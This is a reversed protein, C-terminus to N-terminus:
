HSWRHKGGVNSRQKEKKHSLLIGDYTHVVDEKDMGRDISMLSNGRRPQQPYHQQSCLLTKTILLSGPSASAPPRGWVQLFVAKTFADWFKNHVSTVQSRTLSCSQNLMELWSESSTLSVSRCFVTQTVLNCLQPERLPNGACADPDGPFKNSLGTRLNSRLSASVTPSRDWCARATFRSWAPAPSVRRASEGWGEFDQVPVRHLM